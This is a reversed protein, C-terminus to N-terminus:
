GNTLSSPSTSVPIKEGLFKPSPKFIVLTFDKIRAAIERLQRQSEGRYRRPDSNVGAAKLGLKRALFVARYLHYEQTVIVPSSVCFIEKARSVSDYTSFGAHDLYIDKEPVGESLAYKKMSNVEDYNKKGHDGSFLLKDSVGNKYLYIATDLRDKLMDSPTKDPKLGAGLVIICDASLEDLNEPSFIYKESFSCVYSNIAIAFMIGAAAIILAFILFKYLLKM